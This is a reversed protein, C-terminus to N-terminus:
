VSGRDRVPQRGDATAGCSSACGTARRTAGVTSRRSTAPAASSACGRTPSTPRWWARRPVSTVNDLEGSIVLTPVAPAEAGPPAPPEYLETPQPWRRCERYVSFSEFAVERPTFPRFAGKPYTRVAAELQRERERESAAKDWLM